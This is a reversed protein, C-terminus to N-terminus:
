AGTAPVFVFQMGDDGSRAEPRVPAGIVTSLDRDGLELSVLLRLGDDLEVYGVMSSEAAQDGKQPRHNVTYTYVHAPWAPEVYEVQTSGCEPCHRRPHWFRLGCASCWPVVFRGEAREALFREHYDLPAVTEDAVAPSTESTM